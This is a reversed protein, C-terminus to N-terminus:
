LERIRRTADDATIDGRDLMELIRRRSTERDRMVHGTRAGGGQEMARMGLADLLSDLRRSVTPFSLGLDSAAGSLNGRNRLFTELFAAHDLSLGCFRCPHFTNRITTGCGECALESVRLPDGCIPCQAIARVM